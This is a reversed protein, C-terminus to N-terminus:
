YDYTMYANPGGPQHYGSDHCQFDIIRHEALWQEGTNYCEGWNTFQATGSAAPRVTGANAATAFAASALLGAATLAIGTIARKM